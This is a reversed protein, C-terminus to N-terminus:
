YTHKLDIVKVNLEDCIQEYLDNRYNERKGKKYRRSKSSVTILQIIKGGSCFAIEPCDSDKPSNPKKIVDVRSLNILVDNLEIWQGTM